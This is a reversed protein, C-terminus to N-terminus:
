TWRKFNLSPDREQIDKATLRGNPTHMANPSRRVVTKPKVSTTLGSVASFGHLEVKLSEHSSAM